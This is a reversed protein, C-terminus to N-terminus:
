GYYPCNGAGNSCTGVLITGRIDLTSKLFSGPNALNHPIGQWSVVLKYTGMYGPTEAHRNVANGGEYSWEKKSRSIAPDNTTEVRLFPYEVRGTDDSRDLRFGVRAKGRMTNGGSGEAKKIFIRLNRLTVRQGHLIDVMIIGYETVTTDVKMASEDLTYGLSEWIGPKNNAHAVGTMGAMGVLLKMNFDRRTENLQTM